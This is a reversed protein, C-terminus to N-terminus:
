VNQHHNQYSFSRSVHRTPALMRRSASRSQVQRQNPSLGCVYTFNTKRQLMFVDPPKHRFIESAFKENRVLKDALASNTRNFFPFGLHGPLGRLDDFHGTAHFDVHIHAGGALLRNTLECEACTTRETSDKETVIRKRFVPNTDAQSGGRLTGELLRIM